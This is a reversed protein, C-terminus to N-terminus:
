QAASRVSVCNGTRERLRTVQQMLRLLFERVAMEVAERREGEDVQTEACQLDDDELRAWKQNQKRQTINSDGTIELTNM